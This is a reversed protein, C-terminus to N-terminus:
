ARVHVDARATVFSIKGFNTVVPIRESNFQQFQQAFVGFSFGIVFITTIIKKM